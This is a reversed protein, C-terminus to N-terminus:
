RYLTKLTSWTQGDEAVPELSITMVNNTEDLEPVENYPDLVITATPQGAYVDWSLFTHYEYTCRCDLDKVICTGDWWGGFSYFDLCLGSSCNPYNYNFCTHNDQIYEAMSHAEEHLIPGYYLAIRIVHAALNGANELRMKPQLRFQAGSVEIGVDYLELDLDQAQGPWAWLFTTATLVALLCTTKKNRTM